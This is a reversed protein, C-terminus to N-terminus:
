KREIDEEICNTGYQIEILKLPVVDENCLQHWSNKPIWIHQNHGFKGLLEIDTSSDLSYVTAVGEAVFWFESREKHKQMSLYKNPEIVLEKLKVHQGYEHLIRYYGWQRDTKPKKWDELIWSSSNLKNEGGVGFEFMLRNNSIDMEPINDVTRDGGNAFVIQCDTHKYLLFKIADKATGDRDDFAIVDDVVELAKIISQREGFPLFPRGKKRTLWDDSNVGVVLTDGLQKAAKFYEIHGTHLPDFGGTVLVIKKNQMRM